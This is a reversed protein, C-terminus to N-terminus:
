CKRGNQKFPLIWEDAKGLIDSTNLEERISQSTINNVRQLKHSGKEVMKNWRQQKYDLIKIYIIIHICCFIGQGQREM